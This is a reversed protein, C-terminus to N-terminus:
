CKTEAQRADKVGSGRGIWASLGLDERARKFKVTLVPGDPQCVPGVTKRPLASLRSAWRGDDTTMPM